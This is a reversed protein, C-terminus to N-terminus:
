PNADQREYITVGDARYIPTMFEDFKQAGGAGYKSAELNGFYVFRIDYRQLIAKADDWSRTRYLTEIDPERSGVQEGFSAGRWQGEHGGWGLVTPLGTGASVRAFESYQGGIAEAVVPAGSIHDNLWQIANYDARNGSAMYAFGDLTAKDHFGNAKTWLGFIPYVLGMVVVAAAVVQFVIRSALRLQASLYWTAFAAVLGWQIWAQYYFKFVTNMRAGFNDKLYLFEPGLTLLAAVATLLLAFAISPNTTLPQLSPIPSKLNAIPEARERRPALVSVIIGLVLLLLLPTWPNSVRRNITLRLAEQLPLPGLFDNVYSVLVPQTTVWVGLATALILMPVLIGLATVPLLAWSARRSERAVIWGLFILVIVLVPGFMIFFQPLRTAFILNPLLGGAQTQFGLYFPLYLVIGGALLVIGLLTADGVVQWRWGEGFSRAIAYAGVTLFLYIPFDWTNLFSLAGLVLAYVIIDARVGWGGRGDLVAELPTPSRSRLMLNFAFAVALLVFPLALVHPHVDGLLFSFMPFEDIPQLGIPQGEHGLFEITPSLQWGTPTGPPTNLDRDRVVRSSRWWWWFRDSQWSPEGTPPDSLDELDIWRWFSSALVPASAGPPTTATWFVHRSHLVELFGGLNGIFLVFLPGLLSPLLMFSSPHPASLGEKRREHEDKRGEDEDKRREGKDKAVAILDYVVGFMGVAVLAFLLSVALNFTVGPPTGALKALLSVIVYGFYYYSIAYGSLWPDLPPFVESRRMANLFAFEMPKETGVIEPNHARVFAWLAFAALFLVETALIFQSNRIVFTRLSEFGLKRVAWFSLAAVVAVAFLIGGVTNTLFGLSGMLWFVYGALLLGFAKSLAWGREPLFRLFHFALPWAALGLLLVLLYWLLFSM